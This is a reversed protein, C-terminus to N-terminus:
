AIPVRRKRVWTENGLEARLAEAGLRHCFDGFREGDDRDERYRTFVPRLVNVLEERPVNEAFMANMRIGISTYTKRWLEMQLQGTSDARATYTIALPKGDPLTRWGDKGNKYGYRDLLKNALM